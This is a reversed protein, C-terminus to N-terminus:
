FRSARIWVDARAWSEAFDEDVGADIKGDAALAAQLGHLSWGNHPHDALEERYTEAAEENRGAELLAAGLWHRASFPLPEPEDYAMEDERAVAHEFSEIAAHLDGSHRLIEGDLIYALTGLVQGAPHFRYTATTTQAVAGLSEQHSRASGADGLRLAAYGQAFEWVAGSVEGDPKSKIAQVEDFRGFRILTLLHHMPNGGLKTYDQGARVAIAGQGDYSAAYLLMHLNHTPYIAVGEGYEAKLDSQWAQLNARVSDGWRGLENWTHSPMHNIHSAGPISNGLYKTCPLAREPEVTSETAHVYLHCAGPHRIDQELAKTLIKHIRIVNPDDLERTGRREELVFWASATIAAIDIHDPYKEYVKMMAEAFAQDQERKNAPDFDEVYRVLTANILDQEMPSANGPALEAAKRISALAHPARDVTLAGNLYAGLAYAEGWYCIACNPDVQYAERFSRAAEDVGYAYRLQIGQDFYAQATENTTSIKWSHEGMAKPLLDITAQFSEAGGAGHAMGHADDKPADTACAALFFATATVAIIQKIHAPRLQFDM